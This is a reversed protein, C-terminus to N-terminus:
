WKQSKYGWATMEIKGASERRSAKIFFSGHQSSGWPSAWMSPLKWGVALSFRLGDAWRGSICGALLWRLESASGAVTSSEFLGWAPGVGWSCGYSPSHSSTCRLWAQTGSGWVSTDHSALFFSTLLQSVSLTNHLCSLTHYDNYWLLSCLSFSIIHLLYWIFQMACLVCEM